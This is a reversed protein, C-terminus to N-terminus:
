TISRNISDYFLYIATFAGGMFAISAFENQNNHSLSFATVFFTIYSITYFILFIFFSVNGHMKNINIDLSFVKKNLRKLMFYILVNLFIYHLYNLVFMVDRMITYGFEFTDLRVTILLHAALITMGILLFINIIKTKISLNKIM